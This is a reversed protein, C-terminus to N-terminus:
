RPLMWGGIELQRDELSSRFSRYTKKRHAPEEAAPGEGIARRGRYESCGYAQPGMQGQSARWVAGVGGRGIPTVLDFPGIKAQKDVADIGM